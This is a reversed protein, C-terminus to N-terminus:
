LYKRSDRAEDVTDMAAGAVMAVAVPRANSSGLGGLAVGIPAVGAEEPSADGNWPPLRTVPVVYATGSGMTAVNNGARLHRKLEESLEILRAFKKTM